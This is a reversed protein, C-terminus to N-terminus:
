VAKARVSTNADVYKPKTATVKYIGAALDVTAEGKADTHLTRGAIRVTSGPVPIGADTVTVTVRGDKSTAAVSLGPFLQTQYLSVASGKTTRVIVDVRDDQAVLDLNYMADQSAPIATSVVAGFTQGGNSRRLRLRGTDADRWGVWVRGNPDAAAAVQQKIGSGAAVVTPPQVNYWFLVTRESKVSAAALSNDVGINPERTYATRSAAGCRTTQSGALLHLPSPPDAGFEFTHIGAQSGSGCWAISLREQDSASKVALHWGVVTVNGGTGIKRTPVNPDVGVHVVVDGNASWAQVFTGGRTFGVSPVSSGVLDTRYIAASGVTWGSGSKTALNLGNTPDGTTDTKTGTFVVNLPRGKFAAAAVDDIRSWGSVIANPASVKGAPTVTTEFLAWPTGAGGRSWVVHLVGDATRATGIQGSVTRIGSGAVSWTGPAGVTASDAGAAVPSLLLVSSVLSALCLLLLSGRRPGRLVTRGSVASSLTRVPVVVKRQKLAAFTADHGQGSGTLL